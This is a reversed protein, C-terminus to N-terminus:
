MIMHSGPPCPLLKDKIRSPTNDLKEMRVVPICFRPAGMLADSVPGLAGHSYAQTAAESAGPIQSTDM